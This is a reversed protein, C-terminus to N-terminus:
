VPAEEDESASERQVKQPRAAAHRLSVGVETATVKLRRRETDEGEPTWTDTRMQGFIVVRDSKKV